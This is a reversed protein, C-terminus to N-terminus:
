SMQCELCNCHGDYGYPHEGLDSTVIDFVKFFDDAAKLPDKGRRRLEEDMAEACQIAEEIKADDEGEQVRMLAWLRVLSPAHKDRGLLVFMPEDDGANAYCDFKGPNNKTGM